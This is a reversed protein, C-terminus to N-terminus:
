LEGENLKLLDTLNPLGLLIGSFKDEDTRSRVVSVQGGSYLGNIRTLLEDWKKKGDTKEEKRNM